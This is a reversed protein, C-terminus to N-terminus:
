PSKLPATTARAVLELPGSPSSRGRWRVGLAQIDSAAFIATPPEPLRLLDEAISRAVHRHHTGARLNGGHV